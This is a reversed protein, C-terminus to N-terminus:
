WPFCKMMSAESCPFPVQSSINRNPYSEQEAEQGDLLQHLTDMVTKFMVKRRASLMEADTILSVEKEGKAKKLNVNILSLKWTNWWQLYNLLHWDKDNRQNINLLNEAGADVDIEEAYGLGNTQGIPLHRLPILVPKDSSASYELIGYCKSFVPKKRLAM